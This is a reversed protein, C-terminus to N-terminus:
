SRPPPRSPFLVSKSAPLALLFALLVFPFSVLCFSFLSPHSLLRSPARAFFWFGSQLGPFVCLPHQRYAQCSLHCVLALTVILHEPFSSTRLLSLSAAKEVGGEGSQTASRLPHGLVLLFVTGAKRRMAGTWVWSHPKLFSSIWSNTDTKIM